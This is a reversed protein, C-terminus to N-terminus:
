DKQVITGPRETRVVIGPKPPIPRPPVHTGPLVPRKHPTPPTPNEHSYALGTSLGSLACWFSIYLRLSIKHSRVM